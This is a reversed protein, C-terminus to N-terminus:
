TKLRKQTVRISIETSEIQDQSAGKAKRIELAEYFHGLAEFYKEQDFLNAGAHQLALDLYEHAEEDQRCVEVIHEFAATSEEFEKQWQLVHSLRIMQQVEIKIGLQLEGIIELAELLYFEAEDLEGLTRLFVGIEGLVDVRKEPEQISELSHIMEMVHQQLRDPDEPQDRLNEDISFKPVFTM